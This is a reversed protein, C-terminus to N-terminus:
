NGCCSRGAVFKNNSKIPAAFMNDSSQSNKPLSINEQSSTLFKQLERSVQMPDPYIKTSFVIQEFQIVQGFFGSGSEDPIIKLLHKKM